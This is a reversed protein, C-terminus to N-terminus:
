EDSRIKESAKKLGEQIELFKMLWRYFEYSDGSM